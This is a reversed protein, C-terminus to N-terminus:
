FNIIQRLYTEEYGRTEQCIAKCELYGLKSHYSRYEDLINIQRLDVKDSEDAEKNLMHPSIRCISIPSKICKEYSKIFSFVSVTLNQKWVMAQLVFDEKRIVFNMILAPISAKTDM